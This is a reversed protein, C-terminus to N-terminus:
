VSPTNYTNFYVQMYYNFTYTGTPQNAPIDVFWNSTFVVAVNAADGSQASMWVTWTPSTAFAVATDVGHAVSIHDVTFQDGFNSIPETANIDLDTVFNTLYTVHGNSPNAPTGVVGVAGAAGTWTVSDPITLSSYANVDYTTDSLMQGYGPTPMEKDFLKAELAWRFSASADSFDATKDLKFGITFNSVMNSLTPVVLGGSSSVPAGTVVSPATYVWSFTYHSHLDNALAKQDFTDSQNTYFQVTFNKMNTLLNPTSQNLIAVIFYQTNVDLATINDNGAISSSIYLHTIAPSIGTVHITGAGNGQAPSAFVASSAAFTLVLLLAIATLYKSAFKEM